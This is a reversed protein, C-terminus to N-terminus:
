ANLNARPSAIRFGAISFRCETAGTGAAGSGGETRPAVEGAPGLFSGVVRCGAAAGPGGLLGALGPGDVGGGPGWLVWALGVSAIVILAGFILQAQLFGIERGIARSGLIGIAPLALMATVTAGLILALSPRWKDSIRRSM